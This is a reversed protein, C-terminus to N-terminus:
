DGDNWSQFSEPGAKIGKAELESIVKPWIEWFEATLSCPWPLGLSHHLREERTGDAEYQCQAGQRERKDIYIDLMSSVVQLPDAALDVTGKLPNKLLYRLPIGLM